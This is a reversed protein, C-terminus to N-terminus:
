LWHKTASLHKTIVLLTVKRLGRQQGDQPVSGRDGRSESQSLDSMKM